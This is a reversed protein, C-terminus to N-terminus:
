VQLRKTTLQFLLVPKNGAVVDGFLYKTNYRGIWQIFPFLNHFYDLIRSRNPLTEQLWESPTPDREIYADFGIGYNDERPIDHELKVGLVNALAHGIRSGATTM